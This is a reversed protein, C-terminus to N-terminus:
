AFPPLQRLSSHPSLPRRFLLRGVLGVFRGACAEDAKGESRPTCPILFSRYAPFSRFGFDIEDNDSM